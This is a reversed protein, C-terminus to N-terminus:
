QDTYTLSGQETLAADLTVGYLTFIDNKSAGMNDICQELQYYFPEIDLGQAIASSKQM